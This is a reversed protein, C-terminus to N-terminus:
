KDGVEGMWGVGTTTGGGIDLVGADADCGERCSRSDIGSGGWAEDPSIAAMLHASEGLLGDIVEGLISSLGSRIWTMIIFM